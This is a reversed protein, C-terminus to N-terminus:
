RLDLLRVIKRVLHRLDARSIRIRLANPPRNFALPAEIDLPCSRFEFRTRVEAQPLIVAAFLLAALTILQQPAM